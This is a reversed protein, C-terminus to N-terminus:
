SFLLPFFRGEMKQGKPIVPVTNLLPEDTASLTGDGFTNLVFARRPRESTNEFSGHVLLPHHFTAYGRKVETPVTTSVVLQEETLRYQEWEKEDDPWTFLNGVPRHYMSMDVTKM